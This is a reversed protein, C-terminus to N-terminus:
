VVIRRLRQGSMAMAARRRALQVAKRAHCQHFMRSAFANALDHPGPLVNVSCLAYFMVNRDGFSIGVGCGHSATCVTAQCGQYNPDGIHENSIFKRRDRKPVTAFIGPACAHWTAAGYLGKAYKRFCRPLGIRSTTRDLVTLNLSDAVWRMGCM